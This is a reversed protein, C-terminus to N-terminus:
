RSESMPGDSVGSSFGIILFNIPILSDHACFDYATGYLISHKPERDWVFSWITSVLRLWRCFTDSKWISFKKDGDCILKKNCYMCHQDDWLACKLIYRINWIYITYNLREFIFTSSVSKIKLNLQFLCIFLRVFILFCDFVLRITKLPHPYCYLKAFVNQIPM